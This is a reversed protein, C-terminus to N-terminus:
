NKKRRVYTFRVPPKDNSGGLSLVKDELHFTPFQQQIKDFSEWTDESTPLDKWKILVELQGTSSKRMASVLEPEVTLELEETLQPPIEWSSNNAGIARKLQSVHFVPHLRATPPLELHYAVAGVRGVVPYPGYYRAALKENKRQALSKQRYPRLKLYVLDGEEFKVDRRAED